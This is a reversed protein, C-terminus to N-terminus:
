VQGSLSNQGHGVENGGVAFGVVQEGWRHIVPEGLVVQRAEDNFDNIAEIEGVEGTLVSSAAGLCVV